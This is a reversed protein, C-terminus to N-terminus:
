TKKIAAKQRRPQCVQRFIKDYCQAAAFVSYNAKVDDKAVPPISLFRLRVMVFM